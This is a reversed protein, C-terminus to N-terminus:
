YLATKDWECFRRNDWYGSTHQAQWKHPNCKGFVPGFISIPKDLHHLSAWQLPFNFRTLSSILNFISGQWPGDGSRKFALFNWSIRSFRTLNDWSVGSATLLSSWFSNGRSLGSSSGKSPAVLFITLRMLEVACKWIGVGFTSVATAPIESLRQDGVSSFLEKMIVTAPM